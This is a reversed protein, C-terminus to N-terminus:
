WIHIVRSKMSAFKDDSVCINSTYKYKRWSFRDAIRSNRPNKEISKGSPSARRSVVPLREHRLVGSEGEGDPSVRRRERLLRRVPAVRVFRAIIRTTVGHEAASSESFIRNSQDRHYM